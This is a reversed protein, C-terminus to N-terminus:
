IYSLTKKYHEIVKENQKLFLKKQNVQNQLNEFAIKYLRKVQGILGEKIDAAKTLFLDFKEEILEISNEIVQNINTSSETFEREANFQEINAFQRNDNASTKVLSAFEALIGDIKLVEHGEHAGFLSCDYCILVEDKVCYITKEAKHLSCLLGDVSNAEGIQNLRRDREELNRTIIFNKAIQVLSFPKKDNPCERFTHCCPLCFTHGCPLSMPIATKFNYSECCIDCILDSAQM